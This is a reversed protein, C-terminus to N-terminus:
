SSVPSSLNLGFSILAKRIRSIADIMELFNNCFIRFYACYLTGIQLPEITAFGQSIKRLKHKTWSLISFWGHFRRLIKPEKLCKKVSKSWAFGKSRQRNMYLRGKAHLMLVVNLSWHDGIQFWHVYPCILM